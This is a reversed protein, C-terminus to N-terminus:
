KNTVDITAIHDGEKVQDELAVNISTISGACHAPIEMTVKDTEIAIVADDQEVKDGINVCLEVVRAQEVDGIDPIVINENAM